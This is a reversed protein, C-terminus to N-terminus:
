EVVKVTKLIYQEKGASDGNAYYTLNGVGTYDVPIEDAQTYTAVNPTEFTTVLPTTLLLQKAYAHKLPLAKGSFSGKLAASFTSSTWSLQATVAIVLDYETTILRTIKASTAGQVYKPDDGLRMPIEFDAFSVTVSTNASFSQIVSSPLEFSHAASMTGKQSGTCNQAKCSHQSTGNYAIKGVGAAYGTAALAMLPQLLLALLRVRTSTYM